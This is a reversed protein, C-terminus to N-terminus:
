QYPQPHSPILSKDDILISTLAALQSHLLATSSAAVAVAFSLHGSQNAKKLDNNLFDITKVKNRTPPTTTPAVAGARSRLFSLLSNIIM